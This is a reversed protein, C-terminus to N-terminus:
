QQNAKDIEELMKAIAGKMPDDGLKALTEDFKDVPSGTIKAVAGQRMAAAPAEVPAKLPAPAPQTKMVRFLASQMALTPTLGPHLRGTAPDVFDTGYLTENFKKGITSWGRDADANAEDFLSAENDKIFQNYEGTDKEGQTKAQVQDNQKQLQERLSGLEARMEKIEGPVTRILHDERVLKSDVYQQAKKRVEPDANEGMRELDKFRPDFEPLEPFGDGAEKVPAPKAAELKAALFEEFEKSYGAVKQGLKADATLRGLAEADSASDKSYNTGYTEDLIASVTPVAPEPETSEAQETAEPEEETTTEESPEDSGEAVEAEPESTEEVEPEPVEAEGTEPNDGANLLAMVEADVDEPTKVASDVSM